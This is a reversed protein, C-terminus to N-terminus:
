EAAIEGGPIDLWNTKKPRPAAVSKVASSKEGMGERKSRKRPGFGPRTNMESVTRVAAEVDASEPGADRKESAALVGDSVPDQVRAGKPAAAPKMAAETGLVRRRMRAEQRNKPNTEIFRRHLDRRAESLLEGSCKDRSALARSKKVQQHEWWSLATAYERYEEAVAVAFYRKEVPDYVWIRSLDCPDYRVLVKNAQGPAPRLHTM